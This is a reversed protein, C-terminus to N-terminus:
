VHSLAREIQEAEHVAHAAVRLLQVQHIHLLDATRDGLENLKPDVASRLDWLARNLHEVGLPKESSQIAGSNHRIHNMEDELQHLVKLRAQMPTIM